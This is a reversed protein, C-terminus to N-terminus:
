QLKFLFRKRIEINGDEPIHCRVTRFITVSKMRFSLYADIVSYLTVVCVLINTMILAM